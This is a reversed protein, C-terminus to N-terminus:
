LRGDKLIAESYGKLHPEYEDQHLMESLCADAGEPNLAIPSDCYRRTTGCTSHYSIMDRHAKLMPFAASAINSNESSLTEDM